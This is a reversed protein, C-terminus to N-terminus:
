RSPPPVKVIVSCAEPYSEPGDALTATVGIMHDGASLMLVGSTGKIGKVPGRAGAPAPFSFLRTRQGNTLEYVNFQKVCNQTEKEACSHRKTFDYDLSVILTHSRPTDPTRCGLGLFVFGLAAGFGWLSRAKLTKV